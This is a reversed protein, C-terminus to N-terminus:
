RRPLSTTFNTSSLPARQEMGASAAFARFGIVALRDCSWGRRCRRRPVPAAGGGGLRLSASPVEANRIGGVDLGALAAGEIRQAAARERSSASGHPRTASAVPLQTSVERREPRPGIQAERAEVTRDAGPEQQHRAPPRGAKGRDCGAGAKGIGPMDSRKKMPAKAMRPAPQVQFSM